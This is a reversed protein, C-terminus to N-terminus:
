KAKPGRPDVTDPLCQWSLSAVQGRTLSVGTARTAVKNEEPGKKDLALETCGEANTTAGYPVWPTWAGVLTGSSDSPAARLWMVWACEAWASVPVAVVFLLAIVLAKM